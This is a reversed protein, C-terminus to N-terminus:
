DDQSVPKTDTTVEGCTLAPYRRGARPCSRGGFGVSARRRTQCHFVGVDALKSDLALLSMGIGINLIISLRLRPALEPITRQSIAFAAARIDLADGALLCFPFVAGLRGVTMGRSSPVAGEPHPMLIPTRHGFPVEVGTLM